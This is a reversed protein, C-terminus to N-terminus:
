AALPYSQGSYMAFARAASVLEEETIGFLRAFDFQLDPDVEGFFSSVHGPTARATAADRLCDALQPADLTQSYPANVTGLVLAITQARQQSQSATMAHLM